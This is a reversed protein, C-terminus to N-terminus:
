NNYVRHVEAANSFGEAALEDVVDSTTMNKTADPQQVVEVEEKKKEALPTKENERLLDDLNYHM